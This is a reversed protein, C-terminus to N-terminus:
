NIESFSRTGFAFIKSCGVAAIRASGEMTRDYVWFRSVEDDGWDKSITPTGSIIPNVEAGVKFSDSATSGNLAIALDEMMGRSSRMCEAYTAFERSTIAVEKMSPFLEHADVLKDTTASITTVYNFTSNTLDM